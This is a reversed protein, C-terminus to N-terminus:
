TESVYDTEDFPNVWTVKVDRINEALIEKQFEMLRTFEGITMKFEGEKLMKLMKDIASAVASQVTEEDGAIALDDDEPMRDGLWKNWDVRGSRLVIV